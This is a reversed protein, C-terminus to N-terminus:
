LLIAQTPKKMRRHPKVMQQIDSSFVKSADVPFLLRGASPRLARAGAAGADPGADRLAAAQGASNFPSIVALSRVM